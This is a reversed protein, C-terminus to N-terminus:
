PLERISERFMAKTAFAALAPSWMAGTVYLLNGADLKGALLILANFVGSFGLTLKYFVAIKKWLKSKPEDM